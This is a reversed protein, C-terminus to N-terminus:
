QQIQELLNVIKQTEESLDEPILTQTVPAAGRRAIFGPAQATAMLPSIGLPRQYAIDAILAPGVLQKINEMPREFVGAAVLRSATASDPFSGGLVDEALKATKQLPLQEKKLKKKRKTKDVKRLARLLQAPTFVGEKVAAQSMADAVPELNRYVTNLKQLDTNPNQLEIEDRLQNKLQRFVLGIEGEYGGKYIFQNQLRGLETEANKLINKSLSNNQVVDSINKSIQKAVYEQSNKPLGSNETLDLMKNTLNSVNSIKLKSLTQSYRKDLEDDIFDYAEHGVKNKPLKIGLPEIAENILVNNAQILAKKRENQIVPGVGPYSTSFEEIAQFLRSGISPTDRFAQGITPQVGKKELERAKVSKLPLIKEAGKSLAGAAAAGTLAGVARDAVDGETAGAGYIGGEVAGRLGAGLKAVGTRALGALGTTLGGAIETGYALIPAKERIEELGKRSEELFEDYNKSKDFASRILAEAEDGFGFLVGQALSRGVNLMPSQLATQEEEYNRAKPRPM